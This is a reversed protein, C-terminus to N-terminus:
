VPVIWAFLDPAVADVLIRNPMLQFTRLMFITSKEVTMYEIVISHLGFISLKQKWDKETLRASLKAHRM